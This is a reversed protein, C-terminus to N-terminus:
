RDNIHHTDYRNLRRSIDSSSLMDKTIMVSRGRITAGVSVFDYAALRRWQRSLFCYLLNIVTTKGAGNEGVLVLTSDRMTLHLSRRSHLKEVFFVELGLAISEAVENSMHM